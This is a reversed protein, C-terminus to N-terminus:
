LREWLRVAQEKAFQLIEKESVNLLQRNKYVWRGDSIVGSVDSGQLGYFFHGLWNEATVPTPSRYDLLVLNNDSNGRINNIKLYHHARRLRKYSDTVILKDAQKHSFYNMQASRIMDSHMGDTGLLVKEELGGNNTFSGVENNLNSETNVVIWAKSRSLIQRETEDLHICHALITKSLDLVGFQDLRDVVRKNYDAICIKQDVLDEAVHIHIGSNYKSALAVASELLKDSVTFSAHLGVLGPKEKLYRETEELGKGRPAEGDRDSMEYCLLHNVGVEEFCNALINLSNEIAFPSAHHDIIFNVGSKVSNVATVLACARIMEKDLKKDLNWWISELIQKFNQPQKEPFPMGRALGSYAHHHACIFSKTAIMGEGDFAEPPCSNVKEIGGDAGEDIRFDGSSFQLDKWDIYTINKLYIAMDFDQRPDVLDLYCKALHM